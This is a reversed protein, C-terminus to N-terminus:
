LAEDLGANTRAKYFGCKPSPEFSAGTSASLLIGQFTSNATSNICPHHEPVANNKRRLIYPM